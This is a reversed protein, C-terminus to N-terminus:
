CGLVMYLGKVGLLVVMFGLMVGIMVQPTFPVPQSAAKGAIAKMSKALDNVFRIYETSHARALGEATAKEFDSTVELEEDNPDFRMRDKIAGM